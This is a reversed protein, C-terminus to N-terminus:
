ALRRHRATRALRRAQRIPEVTRARTAVSRMVELAMDLDVRWGPSVAVPRARTRTRFWWGVQRQDILLPSAAHAAPGPLPGSAVLPRQTIGITPVDLVWGLHLALGARRPHDRGTANVLLVEPPRRLARTASELLAGERAALLGAGYPAGARGTVRATTIVRGGRLLVAAAWGEDGADGPGSGGRGFCVFCGGVEPNSQATWAPPRLGALTTQLRALINPDTPWPEAM